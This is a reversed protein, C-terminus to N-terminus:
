HTLCLILAITRQKATARIVYIPRYDALMENGVVVRLEAEYREFESETLQNEAEHIANLDACYNPDGYYSGDKFYAEDAMSWRLGCLEALRKNLEEASEALLQSLPATM